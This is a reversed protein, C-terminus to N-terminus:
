AVRQHDVKGTLRNEMVSRMALLKPEVERREKAGEQHIRIVDEVTSILSKQVYELTSLDIVLRQNAKATQVSNKHLLDANKRLYENTANDITNALEVANKQENLSLAAVFQRKWAPITLEKITHFKEVLATNNAQIMRIMPLTQFASQQLAMLDGIRKDLNAILNDLDNLEQAGQPSLESARKQTALEKLEQIRLKGAAIHVGLLRFEEKVSGFMSELAVIRASLGQQTHDVDGILSDIQEKTTEFNQKFKDKTLMFKDIYPGIVPIKSRRDSLANLNIRKAVMVVENLKAGAADLDKNRVLSLLEDTYSSTHDSVDRGFESVTLPNSADIKTALDAISPVDAETLGYEKLLQPTVVTQLAYSAVPIVASTSQVTEAPLVTQKNQEM